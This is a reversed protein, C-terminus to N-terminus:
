AIQLKDSSIENQFKFKFKQSYKEELNINRKTNETITFITAGIKKDPVYGIKHLMYRAASRDRHKFLRLKTRQEFGWNARLKEKEYTAHLSKGKKMYIKKREELPLTNIYNDGKKFQYQIGIKQKKMSKRQANYNTKENKERAFKLANANTMKMFEVTKKLGFERSLRHLTTEGCCLYRILEANKTTAFNDKIYQIQEPTFNIKVGHKKNKQATTEM